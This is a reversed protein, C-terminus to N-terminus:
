WDKQTNKRVFVYPVSVSLCIRGDTTADITIASTQQLAECFKPIDNERVDLVTFYATVGGHEVRPCVECPEVQGNSSKALDFFFKIVKLMKFWQPPNIQYDEDDQEVLLEEYKKGFIHCFEEDSLNDLLSDNHKEM